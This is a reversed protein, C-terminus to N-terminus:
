ANPIETEGNYIKLVEGILWTFFDVAAKRPTGPFTEATPEAPVHAIEWKMVVSLIVPLYAAHLQGISMSSIDISKVADELMLVQPMTMQESIEISGSFHASPSTLKM